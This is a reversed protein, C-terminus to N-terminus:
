DHCDDETTRQRPPEHESGRVAARLRGRTSWSWLSRPTERGTECSTINIYPPIAATCCYADCLKMPRRTQPTNSRRRRSRGAAELARPIPRSPRAKTCSRINLSTTPRPEGAIAAPVGTRIPIVVSPAVGDDSPLAVIALKDDVFGTVAISPMTHSSSFTGPPAMRHRSHLDPPQRGPPFSRGGDAHHLLVCIQLRSVRSRRAARMAIHAELRRM